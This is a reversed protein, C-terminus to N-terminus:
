NKESLTSFYKFSSDWNFLKKLFLHSINSRLTGKSYYEWFSNLIIHFFLVMQIAKESLTSFYKLITWITYSKRFTNLFIQFFLGMQILKESLTSFYKFSSNCKFQKKLFLQSINSLLTGISYIRSFSNLFIQIFVRHTLGPIVDM